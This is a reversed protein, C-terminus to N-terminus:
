KKANNATEIPEVYMVTLNDKVMYKKAAENIDKSSIKALEDPLTTILRDDLGRSQLNGIMSAQGAMSDQSFVFDKVANNRARVLEKDSINENQLKNIQALIAQQAQALTVGERPTAQIMFLGDGREYLDYYSVVSALLGKERVLSKEFRAAYGGDMIFQMMLLDYVEKKPLNTAIASHLTPVNFAMVLTPVNVTEKILHQQYGRWGKQLVSPREPLPKSPLAGFYKEVKLLTQKPDVDGVIVLTANNPTYWTKYWKELDKIDTNAIQQMPGIISNGKPSDPLALKSFKEFARALPNDDTRQRREEMVVNREQEFEQVFEKSDFRLNVMRDSELELALELRNVPFMEYYGTYDYSTFANHDGGFKAILRDFDAGSVKETGKFMMHELLHSIGGKDKPEDTSGVGYWVQTMAVPARHDEKIIVKLGNSLQYEHRSADEPYVAEDKYSASQKSTIQNSATQKSAIQTASPQTNPDKPSSSQSTTPLSNCATMTTATISALLLIKLSTSIANLNTIIPTEM